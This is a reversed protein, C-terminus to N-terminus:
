FCVELIITKEYIYMHINEYMYPFIKIRSYWTKPAAHPIKLHLMHSRIGQGPIWGPDATNSAHLRLRKVVPFDWRKM